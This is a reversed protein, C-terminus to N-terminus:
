KHDTGITAVVMSSFIENQSRIERRHIQNPQIVIPFKLDVNFPEQANLSSIFLIEIFCISGLIIWIM